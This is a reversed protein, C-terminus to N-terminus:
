FSMSLRQMSSFIKVRLKHIVQTCIKSVVIGYASSFATSALKIAFIVLVIQLLMGYFRGTGEPGPPTLVQDYFMQSSFLPVVLTLASSLFIMVFILVAEKKFSLYEKLLRFFSA